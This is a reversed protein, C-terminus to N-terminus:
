RGRYFDARQQELQALEADVRANEAARRMDAVKGWDASTAVDYVGPGFPMFAPAQPPWALRSTDPLAPLTTVKAISPENQSYAQLGRALLEPGVLRKYEGDPASGNVDSCQRDVSKALKFLDVLKQMLEPVEAYKEAAEDRIAQVKEYKANWEAAYERLAASRFIAQMEPLALRYQGRRVEAESWTRTTTAVDADSIELARDRDIRSSEDSIASEINSIITAVEASSVTSANAKAEKIQQSLSPNKFEKTM